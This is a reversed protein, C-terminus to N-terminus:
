HQVSGPGPTGSFNGSSIKDITDRDQPAINLKVDIAVSKNSPIKNISDALALADDAAEKFPFKQAQLQALIPILQEDTAASIKDISDIGQSKLADFVQGVAAADLKGTKVMYDILQPLTKIHLEKAEDAIDRIADTSARGGKIGAAELNNFAGVVDGIAGPIGKESINQIGQLATQAELASLKGDLFADVVSKKLDDFSKGSAEVLLQLNNLSGGLNNTFVAALSSAFDTGQGLLQSFGTAIGSFAGQAIAPLQNFADFFGSTVSGFNGGGFDLDTIQKLQGNIIAELHNHEFADGFFKDVQKRIKTGESDGGFVSDPILLSLGGTPLALAGKVLNGLAGKDGKLAKEVEGILAQGLSSGIASGLPGGLGEGFAGGLSQGLSAGIDTGLKAGIGKFISDFGSAFDGKFFDSVGSAFVSGWEEGAKKAAAEAEKAAQKQARAFEDAIQKGRVEAAGLDALKQATVEASDGAALISQAMGDFIQTADDGSIIGAKEKEFIDAMAQSLPEFGDGGTLERVKQHLQDYADKLKKSEEAAKKEAISHDVLNPNADKIAEGAKKAADAVATEGQAMSESATKATRAAAAYQGFQELLPGVGPISGFAARSITGATGSGGIDPIHKYFAELASAAKGALTITETLFSILPSFDTTRIIDALKGVAESLSKNNAIAGLIHQAQNELASTVSRFQEALDKETNASTEAAGKEAALQANRSARIKGEASLQDATVGLSKALEDEAKKLDIVGFQNQLIRTRGTIFAQSVKELAEPLEIGQAKALERSAGILTEYEEPRVGALFAANAKKMLDFNNITGVAAASFKNILVDGTQGAQEALKEFNEKVDVIKSAFSLAEVAKVAGEYSLYAEVASKAAEVIGSLTSEHERNASSGSNTAAEVEKIKNGLQDFVSIAGQADVKVTIEVDSAM